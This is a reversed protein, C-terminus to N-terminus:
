IFCVYAHTCRLKWHSTKISKKEPTFYGDVLGGIPILEHRIGFTDCLHKADNLNTKSSTTAPLFLALFDAGFAKQALVAVVASDIGGSIGLIVKSFGAKQVEKRLFDILFTEIAEYKKM